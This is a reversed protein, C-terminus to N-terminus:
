FVYMVSYILCQIIVTDKGVQWFNILRLPFVVFNFSLKWTWALISLQFPNLGKFEAPLIGTWIVLYCFQQWDFKTVKKIDGEWVGSGLIAPSPLLQGSLWCTFGTVFFWLKIYCVWFLCIIKRWTNSWSAHSFKAIGLDNLLFKNLAYYCPMLSSVVPEIVMNGLCFNQICM